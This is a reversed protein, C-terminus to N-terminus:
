FQECDSTKRDGESPSFDTIKDTGHGCSFTDPGSAGTLEDNGDGGVLMDRGEGGNLKDNGALGVINDNGGKGEICDNASAGILNDNKSTGSVSVSECINNPPPNSIGGIHCVVDGKHVDFHLELDIPKESVLKGPGSECQGFFLEFHRIFACPRPADPPLDKYEAVLNFYDPPSGVINMSKLPISYNEASRPLDLLPPVFKMFLFGEVREGNDKASVGFKVAQDEGLCNITGADIENVTKVSDGPNAEVELPIHLFPVMGTLIIAFTTAVTIRPNL